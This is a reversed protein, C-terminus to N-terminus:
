APLVAADPWVVMGDASIFGINWTSGESVNTSAPDTFLVDDFGAKKAAACHHLASLLASM